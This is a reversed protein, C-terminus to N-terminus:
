WNLFSVKLFANKSIKDSHSHDALDQLILSNSKWVKYIQNFYPIAKQKQFKHMELLEFGELEIYTPSSPPSSSAQM